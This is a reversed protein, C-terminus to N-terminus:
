QSTSRSKKKTAENPKKKKKRRRRIIAWHCGSVLVNMVVPQLSQNESHPPSSFTVPQCSSRHSNKSFLALSPSPRKFLKTRWRSEPVGDADSMQEAFEGRLLRICKTVYYSCQRMASLSRRVREDHPTGQITPQLTWRCDSTGMRKADTRWRAQLVLKQAVEM